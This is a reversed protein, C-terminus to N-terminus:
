FIDFLNVNGFKKHVLHELNVPIIGKKELLSLKNLKLM